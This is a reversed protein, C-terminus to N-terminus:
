RRWSMRHPGHAPSVFFLVFFHRAHVSRLRRATVQDIRLTEGSDLLKVDGLYEERVRRVLGKQKYYRGEGLKSNMVKVVIGELLWADQAAGDAAAAGAPGYRSDRERLQQLREQAQRKRREEEEMIADLASRPRKRTDAPAAPAAPAAAPEDGFVSQLKSPLAPAAAAATAAADGSAEQARPAIAFALREEEESRQLETAAPVHRVAEPATEHAIRVQRELIRRQREM